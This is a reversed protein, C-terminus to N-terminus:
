AFVHHAYDHQMNAICSAHVREGCYVNPVAISCAWQAFTVDATKAVAPLLRPGCASVSRICSVHLVSHRANRRGNRQRKQQSGCCTPCPCSGASASTACPLAASPLPRFASRNGPYRCVM